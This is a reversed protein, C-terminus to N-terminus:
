IMVVSGFIDCLFALDRLHSSKWTQCSMFLQSLKGHVAVQATRSLGLTLGALMQRSHEQPQLTPLLVAPLLLVEALLARGSGPSSHCQLSLGLEARGWLQM